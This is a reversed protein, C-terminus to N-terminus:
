NGARTFPAQPVGDGGQGSKTEGEAPEMASRGVANAWSKRGPGRVGFTDNMGHAYVEVSYGREGLGPSCLGRCTPAGRTCM